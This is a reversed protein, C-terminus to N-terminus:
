GSGCLHSVPPVSTITRIVIARQRLTEAYALELEELHALLPGVM